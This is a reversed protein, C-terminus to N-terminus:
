VSYWLLKYVYMHVMVVFTCIYSIKIIVNCYNYRNGYCMGTVSMIITIIVMVSVINSIIYKFQELLVLLSATLSFM